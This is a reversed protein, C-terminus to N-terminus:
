ILRAVEGVPGLNGSFRVWKRGEVGEEKKRKSEAGGEGYALIKNM